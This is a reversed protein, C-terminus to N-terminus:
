IKAKNMRRPIAIAWMGGDPGMTGRNAGLFHERTHAKEAKMKTPEAFSFTYERLARTLIVRSEMQAFNLGLCGRPPFTFPAYRHSSPNTAGFSNGYWSEEPLWERDPNFELVDKGWLAESRHLLWSPIWLQTGAKIQVQKGNPGEIVDDYQSERFTGNPVSTWLRLTENIVKTLFPFKALDEYLLERGNLGDYVSDIEAQLRTQLEPRRCMEFTVWTMLNATTDFGAFSITTATDRQVSVPDVVSTPTNELLKAAVPGVVPCGTMAARYPGSRTPAGTHDRSHELVQHSFSRTHDRAVKFKEIDGNFGSLMTSFSNRLSVNNTESFETTEGFLALHLQAMAEHLYFEWMDIPKGTAARLKDNVAYEARQVSVPMVKALSSLPLFAEVLNTRQEQWSDVSKASLVGEGLFNSQDGYITSKKVHMRAIREADKPHAVVVVDILFPKKALVIFPIVMNTASDGNLEVALSELFVINKGTRSHHFFEKLAHNKTPFRDKMMHPGLLQHIGSPDEWALGEDRLRSLFSTPIAFFSEDSSNSSANTDNAM